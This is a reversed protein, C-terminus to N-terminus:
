SFHLKGFVVYIISSVINRVAYSSGLVLIDEDAEFMCHYKKRGSKSEAYFMIKGFVLDISLILVLFIIINVFFKKM